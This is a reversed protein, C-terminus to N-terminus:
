QSGNVPRVVTSVPQTGLSPLDFDKGKESELLGNIMGGSLQVFEVGLDCNAGKGFNCIGVLDVFLSLPHEPLSPGNGIIISYQAETLFRVDVDPGNAPTLVNTIHGSRALDFLELLALALGVQEIMAALPIESNGAIHFFRGQPFHVFPKADVEPNGIDCCVRIASGVGTIGYFSNAVPVPTKAGLKLALPSAPATTFEPFKGTTLIAERGIYVVDYGLLDNGFSFASPYPNREFIQASDAGPDRSPTLVWCNQVRPCESLESCKDLVLSSKRPYGSSDHVRPIGATFTRLTAMNILPIARRLGDKPAESATVFRIGIEVSGYHNAAPGRDTPWVDRLV